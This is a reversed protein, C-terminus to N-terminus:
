AKGVGRGGAGMSGGAWRVVLRGLIEWGGLDKWVRGGQLVPGPHVGGSSAYPYCIGGGGKQGSPLFPVTGALRQGDLQSSGEGALGHGLSGRLLPSSSFPLLGQQSM